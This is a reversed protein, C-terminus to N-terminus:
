TERYDNTLVSPSSGGIQHTYHIVLSVCVGISGDARMAGIEIVVMPRQGDGSRAGREGNMPFPAPPYPHSDGSSRWM